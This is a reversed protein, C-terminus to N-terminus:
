NFYCKNYNIDTALDGVRWRHGDPDFLGFSSGLAECDDKFKELKMFRNMRQYISRLQEHKEIALFFQRQQVEKSEVVWLRTSETHFVLQEGTMQDPMRGLLARYFTLSNNLNQSTIVYENM